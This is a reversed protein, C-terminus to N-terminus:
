STVEGQEVRLLMAEHGDNAEGQDNYPAFGLVDSETGGNADLKFVMTEYFRDVGITDAATQPCGNRDPPHYDGVTSVCYGNVHTHLHFRCWRAACFHGAQGFWERKM